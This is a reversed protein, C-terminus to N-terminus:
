NSSCNYGKSTILNLIQTKRAATIQATEPMDEVQSYGACIDGNEFSMFAPSLSARLAIRTPADWGNSISMLRAETIIDKGNAIDKALKEKALNKNHEASIDVYNVIFTAPCNYEINGFGDSRTTSYGTCEELTWGAVRGWKKGTNTVYAEAEAQTDFDKSLEQGESNVVEVRVQAAYINLSVLFSLLIYKM